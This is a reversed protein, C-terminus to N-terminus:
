GFDKVWAGLWEAVLAPREGGEVEIEVDMHVVRFGPREEAGKEAVKFHGRVRSNVPVPDVFRLRNFGYNLFYGEGAGESASPVKMASAFMHTLFSLTLFGYSITGGYPTNKKAWEADMHMPDPDLTVDGFRTIMDQNVTIWESTGLDKGAPGLISKEVAVQDGASKDSKTM